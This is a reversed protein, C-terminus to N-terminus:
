SLLLKYIRDFLLILGSVMIRDRSMFFMYVFLRASRTELIDYLCRHAVVTNIFVNPM